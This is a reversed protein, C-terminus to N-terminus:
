RSRCGATSSRAASGAAIWALPGRAAPCRPRPRRTRSRRRRRRRARASRGRARARRARAASTTLGAARAARRAQVVKVVARAFRRHCAGGRSASPRPRRRRRPRRRARRGARARGRQGVRATSSSAGDAFGHRAIHRLQAHTSSCRTSGARERAQDRARARSCGLAARAARRAAGHQPRRGLRDDHERGLRERAGRERDHAEAPRRCCPRTAPATCPKKMVPRLPQSPSSSSSARSPSASACRLAHEQAQAAISSARAHAVRADRQEGRGGPWPQRANAAREERRGLHGVQVGARAVPIPVLYAERRAATAPASRRSSRRRHVRDRDTREAGRVDRAATRTPRSRGRRTPAAARAARRLEDALRGASSSLRARAASALALRRRMDNQSATEPRHM